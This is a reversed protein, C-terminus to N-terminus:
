GTERERNIYIAICTYMYIYISTYIYIDTDVYIYVCMYRYM